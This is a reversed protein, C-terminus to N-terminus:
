SRFRLEEALRPCLEVCGRCAVKSPVGGTGNPTTSDACVKLWFAQVVDEADQERVFRRIISLILRGHTEMSSHLAKQPKSAASHISCKGNSDAQM